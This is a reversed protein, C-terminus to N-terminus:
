INIVDTLTPADPPNGDENKEDLKDQLIEIFDDMSGPEPTTVKDLAPQFQTYITRELELSYKKQEVNYVLDYILWALNSDERNVEPLIPLTNYFNKHLAVATKKGWANLIGGKYILQPILRKRSSSLYDPNPYLPKRRWDFNSRTTPDALYYEFPNRINGSIYVAQVELAGFDLVHGSEDYSVCVVDINGASKGNGENLRVETLSTWHTGEPFFFQCANEAITWNQRFRIPCTIAEEDKDFVTCVGLPSNAKDKTCSPVKNNFPCLKLRRHRKAEESFNDIPYGFVEALPQNAM